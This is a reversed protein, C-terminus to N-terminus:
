RLFQELSIKVQKGVGQVYVESPQDNFEKSLGKPRFLLPGRNLAFILAQRSRPDGPDIKGDVYDNALKLQYAHGAEHIVAAFSDPALRPIAVFANRNLSITNTREDFSGGIIGQPGSKGMDAAKPPMELDADQGTVAIYLRSKRPQGPTLAPEGSEGGKLMGERSRLNLEGKIKEPDDGHCAFCKASLLGLVQRALRQPEDVHSATSGGAASEDRVQAACPRVALLVGIVAGARVWSVTRCGM